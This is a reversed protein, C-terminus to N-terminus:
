SFRVQWKATLTVSNTKGVADFVVRAFLDGQSSGDNLFLGAERYGVGAALNAEGTDYTVSLLFGLNSSPNNLKTLKIDPSNLAVNDPNTNTYIAKETGSTATVLGATSANNDTSGTGMQFHSIYRTVITDESGGTDEAHRALSFTDPFLGDRLHRKGEAVVDNKSRQFDIIEGTHKDRTEIEFRGKPVYLRSFPIRRGRRQIEISM